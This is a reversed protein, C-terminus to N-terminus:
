WRTLLPMRSLGVAYVRGVALLCCGSLEVVLSLVGLLFVCGGCWEAARRAVM